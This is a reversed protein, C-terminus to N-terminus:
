RSPEDIGVRLIRRAVVRNPAAQVTRIARHRQASRRVLQRCHRAVAWGLWASAAHQPCYGLPWAWRGSLHAAQWYLPDLPSACPRMPCKACTQVQGSSVHASASKNPTQRVRTNMPTHWHEYTNAGFDADRLLLTHYGDQNSWQQRQGLRSEDSVSGERSAARLGCLASILRAPSQQPARLM